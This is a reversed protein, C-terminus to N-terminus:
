LPLPVGSVGPHATGGVSAFTRCNRKRSRSRYTTVRGYRRGRRFARMRASDNGETPGAGTTVPLRDAPGPNPVIRATGCGLWDLGPVYGVPYGLPRGPHGPM